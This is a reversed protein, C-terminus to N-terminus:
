KSNKLVRPRWLPELNHKAPDIINTCIKPLEHNNATWKCLDVDMRVDM